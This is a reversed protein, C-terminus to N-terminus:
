RRPCCLLMWLAVGLPTFNRLARAPCIQEGMSLSRRRRSKFYSILSLIAQNDTPSAFREELSMVTPGKNDLIEKDSHVGVVLEKGLRRAQLM